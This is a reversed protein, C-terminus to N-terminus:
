PQHDFVAQRSFVGLIHTSTGTKSKSREPTAGPQHLEVHVTNPGVLIWM